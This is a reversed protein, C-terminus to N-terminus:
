GVPLKRERAAALMRGPRTPSVLCGTLHIVTGRPASPTAALIATVSVRTLLEVAHGSAPGTFDAAETSAPALRLAQLDQRRVMLTEALVLHDHVVVGVPVLVFWRRSLRHWRPWAWVTGAVAVASLVSGRVWREASLLLPGAIVCTACVAWTLASALLYALPARLLHRDEDGYASAQVFARGVEASYALATALLAAALFAAGDVTEAGASWALVAALVGLPVIARVTTLTVVSPIAMTAVGFVWLTAGSVRAVDALAESRGETAGVIATDGFWLVAIWALRMAWPLWRELAPNSVGVTQRIRRERRCIVGVDVDADHTREDSADDVPENRPHGRHWSTTIARLGAV